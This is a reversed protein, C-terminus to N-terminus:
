VNPYNGRKVPRPNISPGHLRHGEERGGGIVVNSQVHILQLTGNNM